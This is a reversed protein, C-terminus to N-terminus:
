SKGSPYNKLWSIMGAPETRLFIAAFWEIRPSELNTFNLSTLVPKTPAM